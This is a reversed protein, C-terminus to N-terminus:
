TIEMKERNERRKKQQKELKEQQKKIAKLAKQEAKALVKIAEEEYYEVAKQYLRTASNAKTDNIHGCKSCSVIDWDREIEEEGCSSCEKVHSFDQAELVISKARQAAWNLAQKFEYLAVHNRATRAMQGLENRAGDDKIRLAADKLDPMSIVITEYQKVMDLAIQQYMKRRRNLATTRIHSQARYLKQDKKSFEQLAIFETGSHQLQWNFRTLRSASVHQAPLRLLAAYEKQQAETCDWPDFQPLVKEVFHDRLKDREKLLADSRSFDEMLEYPLDIFKARDASHSTAVSAIRRLGNDNLSWGFHITALPQRDETKIELQESNVKLQFQLYWKIDPGTRKRVLRVTTLMAGEPFPRHKQWTGTAERFINKGDLRNSIRFSFGQYKGTGPENLTLMKKKGAEIDQIPEGGGKGFRVDIHDINRLTVSRFHLKGGSARVKDWAKLAADHTVWATESYLGTAKYFEQTLQYTQHASNKGIQGYLTTLEEKALKSAEARAPKREAWLKKEIARIEIMREEDNKAKAQKFENNMDEIQRVVLAYKESKQQLIEEGQKRIGSIVEIISNYLRRSLDIQETVLPESEKDIRCGYEYVVTNNMIKKGM